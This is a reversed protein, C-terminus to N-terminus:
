TSRNLFYKLKVDCNLATACLRRSGSSASSSRLCPEPGHQRPQAPTALRAWAGQGPHTGAREAQGPKGPEDLATPLKYSRRQGNPV